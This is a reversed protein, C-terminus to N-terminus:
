KDTRLVALTARLEEYQTKLFSEADAGIRFDADWSNRVLSAKWEDKKVIAALRGSWFAVQQPSLNKAGVVGRWNGEVVDLGQETWTPINANAGTLRKPAALAIARLKGSSLHPELVSITAIVVDVHGGLVATASENAGKFPVITLKNPDVGAARALRLLAVHSSSGMGPAIAFSPPRSTTLAQALDKGTRIASNANVAFAGYETFLQAIPTVDQYKLPGIKLVDNALLTPGSIALYHGDGTRQSVYSWALAGGGGPRAQVTMTTTVLQNRQWLDQILRALVDMSSGAATPVIFEVAKQPSWAASQAHAQAATLGGLLLVVATRRFHRASHPPMMENM